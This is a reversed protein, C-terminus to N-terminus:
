KLIQNTNDTNYWIGLDKYIFKNLKLNFIGIYQYSLSIYIDWLWDDINTDFM